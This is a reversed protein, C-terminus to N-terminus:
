SQSTRLGKGITILAKKVEQFQLTGFNIDNGSGNQFKVNGNSGEIKALVDTVHVSGRSVLGDIIIPGQRTEHGDFKKQYLVEILRVKTDAPNVSTRDKRPYSYWESTRIKTSEGSKLGDDFRHDTDDAVDTIGSAVRRAMEFIKRKEAYNFDGELTADIRDFIGREQDAM